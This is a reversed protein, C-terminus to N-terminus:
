HRSATPPMAEAVHFRDAHLSWHELRESECFKQKALECATGSDDAEVEIFHQCVESHRGNEGLIDKFFKVIYLGM